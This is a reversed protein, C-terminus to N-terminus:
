VPGPQRHLHQIPWEFPVPRTLLLVMHQQGAVLSDAKSTRVQASLILRGPLCPNDSCVGLRDSTLMFDM